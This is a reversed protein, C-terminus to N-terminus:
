QIQFSSYIGFVFDQWDLLKSINVDVKHIGKWSKGSLTMKLVYFFQYTRNGQSKEM